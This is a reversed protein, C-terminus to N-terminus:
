KEPGNRHVSYAYPIFYSDKIGLNDTNKLTTKFVSKVTYLVIYMMSVRCKEVIEELPIESGM